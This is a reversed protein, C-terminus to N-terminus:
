TQKKKRKEGSKSIYLFGLCVGFFSASMTLKIGDGGVGSGDSYNDAHGPLGGLWKRLM